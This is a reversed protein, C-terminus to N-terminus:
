LLWEEEEVSFVVFSHALSGSSGWIVASSVIFVNLEFTGAGCPPTQVLKGGCGERYQQLGDNIPSLTFAAVTARGVHIKKTM